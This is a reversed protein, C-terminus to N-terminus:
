RPEESLPASGLLLFAERFASRSRTLLSEVAKESSRLEAAIDRVSREELYKRELVLRHRPHLRDLAGRVRERLERLRVGEEPGASEVSLSDLVAALESGLEEFALERGRQARGHYHDAILNRCITLTWTLLSAEGRYSSLKASVRCLTAQTIEEAADPDCNLRCLAFRYVVPFLEEFLRDFAALDGRLLRKVLKRDTENM